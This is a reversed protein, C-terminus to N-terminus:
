TSTSHTHTHPGHLLIHVCVCCVSVWLGAAGYSRNLWSGLTHLWWILLRADGSAFCANRSSCLSRNNDYLQLSLKRVWRRGYLFLIFSFSFPFVPNLISLVAVYPKPLCPYKVSFMHTSLESACAWDWAWHFALRVHRLFPLGYLSLLKIATRTVVENHLLRWHQRLCSVQLCQSQVLGQLNWSFKHWDPVLRSFTVHRFLFFFVIFFVRRICTDVVVSYQIQFVRWLRSSAACSPWSPFAVSCPIILEDCGPHPRACRPWSPFAGCRLM